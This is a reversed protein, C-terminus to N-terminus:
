LYALELKVSLKEKCLGGGNEAPSKKYPSSFIYKCIPKNTIYYPKTLVFSM